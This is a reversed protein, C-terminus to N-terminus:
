FSETSYTVVRKIQTKTGDPLIAWVTIINEGDELTLDASFNGSIEPKFVQQQSNTIVLITAEKSAKGSITLSKSSVVSEDQPKDLSLLKSPPTPTPNQTSKNSPNGSSIKTSQYFYFATGAVLLGILVMIFSLIVREQKM